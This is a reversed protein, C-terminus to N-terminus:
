QSNLNAFLSLDNFMRGIMHDECGGLKETYMKDYGEGGKSIIEAFKYSIFYPKWSSYYVEKYFWPDVKINKKSAWRLFFKKDSKKLGEFILETPDIPWDKRIKFMNIYKRGRKKNNYCGGYDKTVNFNYFDPILKTDDAKHLTKFKLNKVLFQIAKYTKTSLSSYQEKAYIHLEKIREEADKLHTKKAGGYALIIINSKDKLFQKTKKSEIHQKVLNENGKKTTILLINKYQNDQTNM